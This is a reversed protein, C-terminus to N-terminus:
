YTSHWLKPSRQCHCCVQAERLHSPLPQSILSPYNRLVLELRSLKPTASKVHMLDKKEQIFFQLQEKETELKKVEMDKNVIDKYHDVDKIIHEEQQEVEQQKHNLESLLKDHRDKLEKTQAELEKMKQRQDIETLLEKEVLFKVQGEVSKRHHKIEKGDEGKVPLDESSDSAASDTAHKDTGELVSKLEDQLKEELDKKQHRIHGLEEQVRAKEQDWDKQKQRMQEELEEKERKMEAM